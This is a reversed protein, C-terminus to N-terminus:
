PPGGRREERAGPRGRRVHRGAVEERGALSLHLPELEVGCAARTSSVSSSRNARTAEPEKGWVASAASQRNQAKREIQPSTAAAAARAALFLSESRASGRSSGNRAIWRLPTQHGEGALARGTEGVPGGAVLDSRREVHRQEDLGARAGALRRHQDVPHERKERGSLGAGLVERGDGERALRRGMQSAPELGGEFRRGAALPIGSALSAEFLRAAREIAESEARDVGEAGEQERLPGELRSDIGRREPDLQLLRREKAGPREAFVDARERVRAAGDGGEEREADRHLLELVAELEVGFVGVDDGDDRVRERQGVERPVLSRTSSKRSLAIGSTGGSGPGSRRSSSCVFSRSARSRSCSGSYSM